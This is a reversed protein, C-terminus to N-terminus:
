ACACMQMVQTAAMEINLGFGMQSAVRALLARDANRSPFAYRNRRGAPAPGDFLRRGLFAAQALNDRYSSSRPVDACGRAAVASPQDLGAGPTM